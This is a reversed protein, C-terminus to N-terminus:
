RKVACFRKDRNKSELPWAYLHCYKSKWGARYDVVLETGCEKGKVVLSNQRSVMLKNDMGDRAHLVAGDAM